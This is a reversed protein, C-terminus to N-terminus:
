RWEASNRRSKSARGEPTIAWLVYTLFEPGLQTAPSMKQLQMDITIIGKKNDIKAQGKAFPLLPTGTFDLRSSTNNPFSVAQVTKSVNININVVSPSAAAQDQAFM